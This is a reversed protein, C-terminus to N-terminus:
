YKPPVKRVYGRPLPLGNEMHGSLYPPTEYVIEITYGCNHCKIVGNYPNYMVAGMYGCDPCVENKDHKMKTM